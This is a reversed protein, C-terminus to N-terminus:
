DEFTYTYNTTWKLTASNYTESLQRQWFNESGLGLPPPYIPGGVSVVSGSQIRKIVTSDSVQQWVIPGERLERAVFRAGGTGVQSITEVAELSKSETVGGGVAGQDPVMAKVIIRYSRTAVYESGGGEPFEISQVRVGGFTKDTDIFHATKTGDAAHLAINRNNRGYFTKLKNIKTTLNAVPDAAGADAQLMGDIVWTHENGISTNQDSEMMKTSIKVNCEGTEHSHRGYRLFLKRVGKAQAFNKGFM